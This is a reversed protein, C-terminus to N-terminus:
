EPEHSDSRSVAALLFNAAQELESIVLDLQNMFHSHSALALIAVCLGAATAVLAEGVGGTIAFPQGSKINLVSFAQIMGTVTGLLGLLPALTVITDLYSLRYRLKAAAIVAWGDLLQELTSRRGKAALLGKTLFEAAIGPNRRCIDIAGQWDKNEMQPELANLLTEIDTRANRYQSYREITIAIVLISCALLPYMVFGGKSFFTTSVNLFDIM